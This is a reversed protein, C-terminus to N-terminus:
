SRGGKRGRGTARRGRAPRRRGRGAGTRRATAAAGVRPAALPIRERPIRSDGTIEHARDLDATPPYAGQLDGTGRPFQASTYYLEARFRTAVADLADRIDDINEDDTDFLVTDSLLVCPHFGALAQRVARGIEVAKTPDATSIEWSVKAFAM